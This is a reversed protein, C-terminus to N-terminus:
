LLILGPNDPPFLDKAIRECFLKFCVLDLSTLCTKLLVRCRKALGM